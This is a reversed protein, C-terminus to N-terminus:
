PQWVLLDTLLRRDVASQHTCVEHQLLKDVLLLANARDKSEM